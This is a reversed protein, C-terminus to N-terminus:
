EQLEDLRERVMQIFEVTVELEGAIREDSWGKSSLERIDIVYDVADIKDRIASGSEVIGSEHTRQERSSKLRTEPVPAKETQLVLRKYRRALTALASDKGRSHFISLLQAWREITYDYGVIWRFAQRYHNVTTPMPQRRTKAIQRLTKVHAPDYKGDQWGEREDWVRLYDDFKDRHIRTDKVDRRSKWHNAIAAVSDTIARIPAEVHIYYLPADLFSDLEASQMQLMRQTARQKQDFIAEPSDSERYSSDGAAMFTAGVTGLVAPPLANIIMQLQRRVTMPQVPGIVCGPSTTADEATIEEASLAPDVPDGSVGLVSLLQCAFFGWLSCDQPLQNNRYLHADQWTHLYVPHRRAFEWRYKFPLAMLRQQRDMLSLAAEPSEAFNETGEAGLETTM